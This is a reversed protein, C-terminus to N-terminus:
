MHDGISELESGIVCDKFWSTKGKNARVSRHLGVSQEQRSMDLQGTDIGRGGLGSDMEMGHRDGKGMPSSIDQSGPAVITQGEGLSTNPDASSTVHGKAGWASELEFDPEMDQSVPFIVEKTVAPEYAQLFKRNRRTLCNM